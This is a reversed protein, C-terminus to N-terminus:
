SEDLLKILSQILSQLGDFWKSKIEDPWEANFSPFKLLVLHMLSSISNGKARFAQLDHTTLNLEGAAGAGTSRAEASKQITSRTGRFPKIYHSTEIDAERCASVFFAVCKRLTDGSAGQKRFEQELQDSTCNGLPFGAFLYAYAQKLIERLIAKREEGQSRILKRLKDTPFGEPSVLDLYRLAASLQLRIVRSTLPMVDDDIRSPPRKAIKDLLNRLTSFPVYPPVRGGKAISTGPDRSKM